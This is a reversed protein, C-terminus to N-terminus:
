VNVTRVGGLNGSVGNDDVTNARITTAQQTHTMAVPLEGGDLSDRGKNVLKLISQM